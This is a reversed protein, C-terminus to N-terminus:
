RGSRGPVALIQSRVFPRAIKVRNPTPPSFMMFRKRFNRGSDLEPLIQATRVFPWAIEGWNAISLSQISM